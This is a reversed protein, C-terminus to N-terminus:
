AHKRFNQPPRSEEEKRDSLDQERESRKELTSLSRVCPRVNLFRAGGEVVCVVVGIADCADRASKQSRCIRFRGFRRDKRSARRGIDIGDRCLDLRYPSVM